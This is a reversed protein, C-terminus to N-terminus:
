WITELDYHQIDEDRTVLPMSEMQCQAILMRDFPDHHHPPLEYVHTAHSLQVPLPRFRYMSMRSAIYKAPLDPLILRGKSTKIVIEWVSAASLFIDNHGDAIIHKARASLLPNDTNWWLFTHTDILVKM